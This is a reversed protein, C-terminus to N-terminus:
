ASAKRRRWNRQYENFAHRCRECPQTKARRHQNWGAYTGCKDGIEPGDACTSPPLDFRVHCPHCRPQYHYPDASYTLKRGHIEQSLEAPDAHDYAWELAPGACDVCHHESASGRLTRVREHATYYTPVEARWTM